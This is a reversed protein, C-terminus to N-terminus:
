PQTSSRDKMVTLRVGDTAPMTQRQTCLRVDNQPFGTSGDFGEEEHNGQGVPVPSSEDRTPTTTDDGEPESAVDEDLEHATDLNNGNDFNDENNFQEMAVSGLGVLCETIPSSENQSGTVNMEDSRSPTSEDQSGTKDM